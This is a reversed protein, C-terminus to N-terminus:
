LICTITDFGFGVLNSDGLLLGLVRSVSWTNCYIKKIYSHKTVVSVVSYLDITIVHNKGRIYKSKIVNNSFFVKITNLWLYKDQEKYLASENYGVQTKVTINCRIVNECANLYHLIRLPDPAQQLIRDGLTLLQVMFDWWRSQAHSSSLCCCHVTGLPLPCFRRVHISCVSEKLTSEPRTM